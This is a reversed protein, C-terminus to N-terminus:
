MFHVEIPVAEIPDVAVIGGGANKGKHAAGFIGFLEDHYNCIERRNRVFSVAYADGLWSVIAFKEIRIALAIAAAVEAIAAAYHGLRHRPHSSGIGERQANRRQAHEEELGM